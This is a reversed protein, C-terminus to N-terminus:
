VDPYLVRSTITDSVIEAITEPALSADISVTHDPQEAALSEMVGFVVRQFDVREYREAGYGGRGSADLPDLKLYLVLDPEPLGATLSRAQGTPLGRATSYAASTWMYRDALVLVHRENIYQTKLLAVAEWMNAALVLSATNPDMQTEGRLFSDILPGTATGVRQPYRLHAVSWGNPLAGEAVFHELARAAQTSKGARDLGEFAVIHLVM